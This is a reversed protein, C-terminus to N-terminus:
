DCVNSKFNCSFRNHLPKMETVSLHFDQLLECSLNIAKDYINQLSQNTRTAYKKPRIDMMHGALEEYHLSLKMLLRVLLRKLSHGCTLVWKYFKMSLLAERIQKKSLRLPEYIRHITDVINKNCTVKKWVPYTIPRFGDKRLLHRDFESEIAIHNYGPQKSIPIVFSHCESDLIYHCLYGLMYAYTGSDTGEKRLFPLLKKLFKDLPQNHQWYGMQNTRLKFMPHYFFLFDPGQLGAEFETKHNEIINKLEEPLVAAVKKGFSNHAYICPM